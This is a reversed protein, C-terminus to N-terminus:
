RAALLGLVCAKRHPSQIIRTLCVLAEAFRGQGIAREVAGIRRNGVGSFQFDLQLWRAPQLLM